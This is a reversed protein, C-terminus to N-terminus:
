QWRERNGPNARDQPAPVRDPSCSVLRRGADRAERCRAAVVGPQAFMVIHGEGAVEVLDARRAREALERAWQRPVVPDREGRIIVVPVAVEVIRDEMPYALLARLRRVLSGLGCRVSDTVVIWNAAPAEARAGSGLRYAQRWGSRERPNVVPAVLVAAVVGDPRMRSMEVAVQTGMSHGVLVPERIGLTDLARWAANALDPIGFPVPTGGFGPMDVVHVTADHALQRALPLFYRHSVGLGPILVYADDGGGATHVHVPQGDVNVVQDRSPPLSPESERRRRTM